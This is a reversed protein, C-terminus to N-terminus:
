VSVAYTIASSGGQAGVPDTSIMVVTAGAGSACVVPSVPRGVSAEMSAETADCIPEEGEPEADPPDMEPLEEATEMDAPPSVDEAASVSSEDEEDPSGALKTGTV